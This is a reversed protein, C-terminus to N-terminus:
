LSRGKDINGHDHDNDYNYYDCDDDHDDDYDDHDIWRNIKAVLVLIYMGLEKKNIMGDGILPEKMTNMQILEVSSEDNSNM